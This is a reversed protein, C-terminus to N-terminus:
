RILFAHLKTLIDTGEPNNSIICPDDWQAQYAFTEGGFTLRAVAGGVWKQDLAGYLAGVAERLVDHDRGEFELSATGDSLIRLHFAM